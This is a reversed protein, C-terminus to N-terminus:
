CKFSFDFFARCIPVIHSEHLNAHMSISSQIIYLNQKKVFMNVNVISEFLNANQQNTVNLSSQVSTKM